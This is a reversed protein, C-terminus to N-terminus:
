RLLQSLKADRVRGTIPWSAVDSKVSASALCGDPVRSGVLGSVTAELQSLCALGLWQWKVWFHFSSVSSLQSGESGGLVAAIVCGAKQLTLTRVSAAAAESIILM